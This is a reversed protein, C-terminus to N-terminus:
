NSGPDNLPLTVRVIGPSQDPHLIEINGRHSEIIKRSVALGLGLGVSRTSQFPEGISEATEHSFGAGTDQVEVAIEPKGTERSEEFRVTIKQDDPNAQLANLILESFAHRLAKTDGTIKWPTKPRDIKFEARNKGPYYSSADQYAGEILDAIKATGGSKGDWDRSLFTMQQTLRM